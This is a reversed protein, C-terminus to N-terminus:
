RRRDGTQTFNGLVTFSDGAVNTNVKMGVRIYEMSETVNVLEAVSTAATYNKTWVNGWTGYVKAEIRVDVSTSTLTTIMVLITKQDFRQVDLQGSTAATGGASDYVYSTSAVDYASFFTHLYFYDANLPVATFLTFLLALIVAYYTKKFRKIM